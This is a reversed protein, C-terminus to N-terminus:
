TMTLWKMCEHNKDVKKHLYMTFIM